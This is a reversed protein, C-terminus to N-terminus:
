AFITKKILEHTSFLYPTLYYLLLALSQRNKKLREIIKQASINLSLWIKASYKEGM